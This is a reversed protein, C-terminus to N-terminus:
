GSPQSLTGEAVTLSFEGSIEPATCHMSIVVREGSNNVWSCADNADSYQLTAGLHKLLDVGLISPVGDNDLIEVPWDTVKSRGVFRFKLDSLGVNPGMGGGSAATMSDSAVIQRLTRKM